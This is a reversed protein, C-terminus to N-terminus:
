DEWSRILHIIEEDNKICSGPKEIIIPVDKFVIDNMINALAKHGILGDGPIEHKDIYSGCRDQSDNLHLLKINQRGLVDDILKIFDARGKEQFIDYGYVFAHATDVCFGILDKKEVREVIMAFDEINGGFSKGAHPTNELLLRVNPYADNLKNISEIVYLLHDRKLALSSRTSGSHIVIGDSQLKQAYETEKQLSIFMKSSSDTLGSWYAAHVYYLFNQKQKAKVFEQIVKDHLSIYKNSEAILFSQAVDINLQEVIPMIDLLSHHLRIHIGIPRAM